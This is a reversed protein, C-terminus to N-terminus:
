EHVSQSIESPSSTMNDYHLLIEVGRSEMCQSYEEKKMRFCIRYQGIQEDMCISSMGQRLLYVSLVSQCVM